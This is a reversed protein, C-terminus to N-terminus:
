MSGLWSVNASASPARRRPASTLVFVRTVPIVTSRPSTVPTSVSRPAISVPITILAPPMYARSIPARAPTLTGIMGIACSYRTSSGDPRGVSM